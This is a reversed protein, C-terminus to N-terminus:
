FLFLRRFHKFDPLFFEFEKLHLPESELNASANLLTDETYDAQGQLLNQATKLYLDHLQIEQKNREAQFSFKELVLSPSLTSLSLYELDLKQEDASYAFALKSNLHNIEKPIITDIADIKVQGEEITLNTIKLSFNGSSEKTKTKNERPEVLNQVNWTSDSNEKLYFWPQAINANHIIM